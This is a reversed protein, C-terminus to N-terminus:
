ERRVYTSPAEGLVKRFMSSFASPSEYGLTLAVDTVSDGRGLRVIADMICARGRWAAFSLGTQQRFFRSFHRESKNICAAWDRARALIDPRQAFAECLRHLEPDKPMPLTTPMLTAAGLEALILAMLRGDRSDATYEPGVDVASLLLQRLLPSVRIVECSASRRPQVAPEVYLSRTSVGMMRVEHAVGPPIWVASHTPVIWTGDDTFVEMVGTGGYLLQARRHSHRPLLYGDRYDTGIALVPAPWHDYDQLSVNRM